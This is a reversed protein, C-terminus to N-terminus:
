RYSIFFLIYLLFNNTNKECDKYMANTKEDYHVKTIDGIQVTNPYNLMTTKIAIKKIESAFYVNEVGDFKVGLRDFAIQGCSIGDFLSLVKMKGGHLFVLLKKNPVSKRCPM